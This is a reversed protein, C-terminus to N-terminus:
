KGQPLSRDLITQSTVTSQWFQEVPNPNVRVLIIVLTASVGILAGTTLRLRSRLRRIELQYGVVYEAAPISQPQPLQPFAKAPFQIKRRLWNSILPPCKKQFWRYGMFIFAPKALRTVPKVLSRIPQPKIKRNIFNVSGVEYLCGMIAKITAQERDFLNVLLLKVEQMRDAEAQQEVVQQPSLQPPSSDPFSSNSMAILLFLNPHCGYTSELMGQFRLSAM